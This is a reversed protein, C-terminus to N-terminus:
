APVAQRAVGALYTVVGRDNPKKLTRSILRQGEPSDTHYPEVRGVPLGLRKVVDRPICYEDTARRHFMRQRDEAFLLRDRLVEELFEATYWHEARENM